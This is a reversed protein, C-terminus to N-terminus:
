SRGCLMSLLGVRLWELCKSVRSGLIEFGQLSQRYGIAEMLQIFFHFSMASWLYVGVVQSLM